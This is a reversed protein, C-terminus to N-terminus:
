SLTMWLVGAGHANGGQIQNGKGAHGTCGVGRKVRSIGEGGAFRIPGDRDLIQVSTIVESGHTVDPDDGADKIIGCAGNGRPIVELYLTKGIPTEVEIIDPCRGTTQWLASAAAGGTMCSGTSVGERLKKM